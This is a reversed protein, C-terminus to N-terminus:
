LYLIDPSLSQRSGHSNNKIQESAMWVDDLDIINFDNGLVCWGTGLM